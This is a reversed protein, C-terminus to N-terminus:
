VPSLWRETESRTAKTRNWRITGSGRVMGSLAARSNFIDGGAVLANLWRETQNRGLPPSVLGEGVPKYLRSEPLQGRSALRPNWAM